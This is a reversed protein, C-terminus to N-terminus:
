AVLEKSPPFIFFSFFWLVCREGSFCEMAFALKLTCTAIIKCMQQNFQYFRFAIIETKFSVTKMQSIYFGKILRHNSHTIKQKKIVLLKSFILLNKMIKKNERRSFTHGKRSVIKIESQGIATICQTWNPHFQGM